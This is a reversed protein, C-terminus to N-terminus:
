RRRASLEISERFLNFRKELNDIYKDLYFRVIRTQYPARHPYDKLYSLQFGEHKPHDILLECTSNWSHQTGRSSRRCTQSCQMYKAPMHLINSCGASYPEFGLGNTGVAQLLRIMRRHLYRAIKGYHMGGIRCFAFLYGISKPNTSGVLQSQCVVPMLSFALKM